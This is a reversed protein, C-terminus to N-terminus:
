SLQWDIPTLHNKQLYTNTQSFHGCGIFGRHASLPSPHASELVLHKDKNIFAAKSRAFNGWLLFVLHPFSNNLYRIVSDTFQEWGKNQHSGALDKQVTLTANLLLVGQKAWHTLDGHAPSTLSLDRQMEAFINRLSPPIKVGRAVSFALGNAEGDGHYPDQGLIVVKVRDPPCLNLANFIDPFPPFIAQKRYEEQLFAELFLFEPSSIEKQLSEKWKVGLYDVLQFM